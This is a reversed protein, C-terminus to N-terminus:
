LKWINKQVLANFILNKWYECQSRTRKYPFILYCWKAQQLFFFSTTPLWTIHINIKIQGNLIPVKHKLIQLFICYQIKIGLTVSVSIYIFFPKSYAINTKSVLHLQIDPLGEPKCFQSIKIIKQKIRWAFYTM